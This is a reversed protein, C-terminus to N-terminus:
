WKLWHKLLEVVFMGVAPLLTLTAVAALANRMLKRKNLWRDRLETFVKLTGDIKQLHERTETACNLCPALREMATRNEAAQSEVDEMKAHITRHAAKLGSVQSILWNNQKGAVDIKEYLWVESPSKGALLHPPISPTMVEPPPGNTKLFLATVAGERENQDTRNEDTM